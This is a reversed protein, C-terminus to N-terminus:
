GGTVETIQHKIFHIEADIPDVIKSMVVQTDVNILKAEFHLFLGGLATTEQTSFNIVVYGASNRTSWDIPKSWHSKLNRDVLYLYWAGQPTETVEQNGNYLKMLISKSTGVPVNIIEKKM